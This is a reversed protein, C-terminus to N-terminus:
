GHFTILGEAPSKVIRGISLGIIAAESRMLTEFVLAISGTCNLPVNLHPDYQCVNELFFERFSTRVIKEMFPDAIHKGVFYSVDAFFRNPASESYIRSLMKGFDYGTTETFLQRWEKPCSNNLFSAIFSKGIHVGSAKDGFMWGVSKVNELIDNGDYLCSNSGTGMICAIGAQHGCLGRAAGLLDHEVEITASPFFRWLIGKVTNINAPTSCGAGYFYVETIEAHGIVPLLEDAVADHLVQKDFYYPNYGKTLACIVFKGKDTLMWETKTSGSDAILKM